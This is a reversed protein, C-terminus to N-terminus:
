IQTTFEFARCPWLCVLFETKSLPMLWLNLVKMHDILQAGYKNEFTAKFYRMKPKMDM